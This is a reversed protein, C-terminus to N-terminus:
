ISELPLPKEMLANEKELLEKGAFVVTIGKEINPVIHKRVAEIVQEKTVSLLKNRNAQRIEPTKGERMWIYAVEGRSGPAVPADLNQVAELKSEELDDEDFDGALISQVAERFINLTNFINPDRYSYFYFNGSSTSSVAGSGYAGGQERIRPHLVLNDILSAAISLAPADPHVYTITPLVHGTFAVPSSIIRGQSVIDLSPYNGKWPTFTGKPLEQLGFFGHAKLEDYKGSDCTILLHPHHFAGLRRQLDMLKTILGDLQNDLDNALNKIFLYYNLGYWYSSIASAADLGSAALNTAYRMASQILGSELSVYHKHIIEKLRDKDTLDVTTAIEKLLPFLKHANRYLAKGRISFSSSYQRYDEAKLYLVPFASVGGTYAQIYELTEEYSRNGSGMQTMLASLLRLLPLEDQSLNPLDFILDAYVIKNTFVNHHFVGLDGCTEQQLPYRKSSKPVDTLSIKPLVDVDQDDNQKQYEALEVTKHLIQKVEASNLEKKVRDLEEREEALEKSALEQDPNLILRVFHKNDLFYKRLLGTLYAPDELNRRHLQDFLSHIMLGNEAAGGHQKLLASRMFLSLGYPTHNGGIESRHFELQHMVNEVMELPIGKQIVEQLTSRLVEELKDADEARCGRLVMVIPVESIEADTYITAQKCLGSKLLALKLPSADTDMLILELVSLALLDQQDLIHCTLWGFSVISKDSLDEEPGVPYNLSLFHPKSFRPQPPVPAVPNLKKADKLTKQTIFDLHEELPMNGYFFFLCRSPQYYETHFARLEQYTLKPIVKPDGGSNYGYTIKPFLAENMAESLRSNPSALSGKMENFVIGKHELPSEPDDPVAFEYRHGEQLFSLEKLNPHFVADLYVDLLNYFDKPVQSAAPYCTFDSGTLANMFTNLSRRTMAFFPDKVPFKKSGCLVTHELIHAVGNSSDPLTQFSLCFVNEPDDNSIHMVQAGTPTHTLERLFCNLEPIEVAKTLEFDHYKQGKAFLHSPKLSM